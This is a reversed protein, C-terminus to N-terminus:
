DNHKTEMRHSKVCPEICYLGVLDNPTVAGETAAYIRKMLDRRPTVLGDAIRSVTAATTDVSKAFAVMSISNSVLFDNLTM